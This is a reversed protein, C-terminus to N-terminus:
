AARREGLGGLSYLLWIMTVLAAVALGDLITPLGFHPTLMAIPLPAMYGVYTLTQYIAATLGIQGGPSLALSQQLGITQCLGYAMGLLACAVLAEAMSQTLIAHAGLSFGTIAFGFGSVILLRARGQLRAALQQILVGTLAPLPTVLATFWLVRDGVGPRLAGPITALAVAATLFVFPALPLVRRLFRGDALVTAPRRRSAVGAPADAAVAAAVPPGGLGRTSAALWPLCLVTLLLHPAYAWVFGGPWAAIIVGAVLPGLGFGTTMAIVVSRAGSAEPTLEKVWATGASFGLGSALGAALRGPSLWADSLTGLCLMLTSLGSIALSLMVVTRRGLRDSVPGGIFLGPVLGIAYLVFLAQARTPSADGFMQYAVVLPSFQNAGWGIVTLALAPAMSRATM